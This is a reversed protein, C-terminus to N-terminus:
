GMEIPVATDANGARRLITASYNDSYRSGNSALDTRGNYRQLAVSWGDFSGTARNRPPQGSKGFGKRALLIIAAKLNTALDGENRAVPRSIGLDSKYENWDGPVNVQAPDIRWADMSRTDGGGSEQILWAKV